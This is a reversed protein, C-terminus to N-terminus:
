AARTAPQYIHKGEVARVAAIDVVEPVVNSVEPAALAQKASDLRVNVGIEAALANLIALGILLWQTFGWDGGSTLFAIVNAVAAAVLSGIVKLAAAWSGRSLPLFITVITSVVLGAFQWITAADHWAEEPIAVAATLVTIALTLLAALYKNLAM